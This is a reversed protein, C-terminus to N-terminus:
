RLGGLAVTLTEGNIGSAEDSALFAITNAVEEASVIRGAPYSSAREEWVQEVSVNRDRSEWEASLNTPYTKVYGPLVANCTVNYQAVDLAISRTLGLVGAKSACYAAGAPAGVQADTSSVM